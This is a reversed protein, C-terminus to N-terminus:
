ALPLNVCMKASVAAGCETCKAKSDDDVKMFFQWVPDTPRGGKNM